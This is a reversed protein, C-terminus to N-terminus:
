RPWPVSRALPTAQRGAKPDRAMLRAVDRAIAFEERSWRSARPCTAPVRKRRTDVYLHRLLATKGNNTEGVILLNPM